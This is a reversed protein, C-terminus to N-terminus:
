PKSYVTLSQASRLLLRVRSRSSCRISNPSRPPKGNPATTPDWGGVALDHQPPSADRGAERSSGRTPARHPQLDPGMSGAVPSGERSSGSSAARLSSRGSALHTRCATPAAAYAAPPCPAHHRPVHCLPTMHSTQEAIRSGPTERRQQQQAELPPWPAIPATERDTSPPQHGLIRPVSRLPVSHVRGTSRHRVAGGRGEAGGCPRRPAAARWPRRAAPM